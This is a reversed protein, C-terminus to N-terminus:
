LSWGQYMIDEANKAKDKIKEGEREREGERAKEEKETFISLFFHENFNCKSNMQLCEYASM